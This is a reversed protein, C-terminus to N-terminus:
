TGAPGAPIATRLRTLVHDHELTRDIMQHDTSTSGPGLDVLQVLVLELDELLRRREPDAAAPSDLLLRTNSLLDRAWASMTSDAGRSADSARRGTSPATQYSTLLAEAATLNQVVAIQYAGDNRDPGAAVTTPPVPGPAPAVHTTWRGLAVGTALVLSAALAMSIWRTHFVRPRVRTAQIATWMEARPTKDPPTHYSRAAALLRPDLPADSEPDLPEDDTM